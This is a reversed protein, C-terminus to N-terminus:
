NELRCALQGRSTGRWRMIMTLHGQLDRLTVVLVGSSCGAHRLASGLSPDKGELVAAMLRIGEVMAKGEAVGWAKPRRKGCGPRVGFAWAGVQFGNATPGM